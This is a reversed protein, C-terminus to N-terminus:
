LCKPSILWFCLKENQAPLIARMQPGSSARPSSVMPFHTSSPTAGMPLYQLFGVLGSDGVLLPPCVFGYICEPILLSHYTQFWSYFTNVRFNIKLQLDCHRNPFEPWNRGQSRPEQCGSGVVKDQAIQLEGIQKSPKGRFPHWTIQPM